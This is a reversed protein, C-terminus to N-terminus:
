EVTIQHLLDYIEKRNALDEEFATASGAAICMTLAKNYDHNELWGYLFGAVMSDGAGVSNVAKGKPAPMYLDKADESVLVAGDKGMSILVNRAGKEQLKHGYYAAEEKTKIEHHFIAGLEHQNPKILFPHFSLTDTLLEGEADVICLVDKHNVYQLIDAYTTKSLHSPVSGSLVLVDGDKIDDLKGYLKHMDEDSIHPGRGNIETETDSRLKVNIRSDGSALAIFDSTIGKEKVMEDIVNGIHGAIFGLATTKYGLSHVISSVNIGKGGPRILETDTHNIIGDKFHPVKIIYDISANLTVTYIM